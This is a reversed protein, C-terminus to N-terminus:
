NLLYIYICVYMFFIVELETVSILVIADIYMKGEQAKGEQTHTCLINPM